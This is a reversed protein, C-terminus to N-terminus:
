LGRQPKFGARIPTALYGLRPRASNKARGNGPEKASVGVRRYAGDGWRGMATDGMRGNAEPCQM